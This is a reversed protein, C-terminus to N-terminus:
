LAAKILRKADESAWEAPGNLAGLVCGNGDILFTVPLGLALGENKFTSHVGMQGDHQFPLGDLKMEEYFRKPKEDTGLDLSIPVVEFNEGGLTENLEELAPMEARCPACWTAWLNLLVTKGKRDSLKASTGDANNFALASADFPRDVTGFAAVDGIAAADLKTALEANISCNGASASQTNGGVTSWAYFGAAAIVVAGIAAIAVIRGSNRTRPANPAPEPADDAMLIMVFDFPRIRGVTSASIPM